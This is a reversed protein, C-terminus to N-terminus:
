NIILEFRMNTDGIGKLWNINDNIRGMSQMSFREGNQAYMIVFSHFPPYYIIEGVQYGRYSVEDAPLPNQFRYVLERDYLDRMPLNLPLKKIFGRTTANDYLTAILAKNKIIVRIKMVKKGAIKIESNAKLYTSIFLMSFSIILIILKQM